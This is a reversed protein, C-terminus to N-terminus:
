LSEERKQFLLSMNLTFFVVSIVMRNKGGQPLSIQTAVYNEKSFHGM